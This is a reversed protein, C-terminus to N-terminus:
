FGFDNLNSKTFSAKVTIRCLAPWVLFLLDLPTIGGHLDRVRIEGHSASAVPSRPVLYAVM